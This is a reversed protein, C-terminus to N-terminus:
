DWESGDGYDYDNGTLTADKDAVVFTFNNRQDAEDFVTVLGQRAAGYARASSRVTLTSHDKCSVTLWTADTKASWSYCNVSVPVDVSVDDAEVFLYFDYGIYQLSPLSFEVHTNQIVTLTRDFVGGGTISFTTKRPPDCSYSGDEKRADYEQVNVVLKKQKGTGADQVQASCWSDNVKISFSEINTELQFTTSSAQRSFVWEAPMDTTCYAEQTEPPTEPGTPTTPTTPTTQSGSPKDPDVPGCAMLLLTAALPLVRGSLHKIAM